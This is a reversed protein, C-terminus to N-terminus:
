IGVDCSDEASRLRSSQNIRHSCCRKTTHLYAVFLKSARERDAYEIAGPAVRYVSRMAMGPLPWRFYAESNVISSRKHTADM